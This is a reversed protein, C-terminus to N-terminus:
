KSASPFLSEIINTELKLISRIQRNTANYDYHMTKAMELKERAALLSPQKTDHNKKCLMSIAAYLEEDTLFVSEHLRKATESFAEFNKSTMYFYNHADRFMSEALKIDCFSTPIIMDDLIMLGTNDFDIDHSKCIARKAKVSLNEFPIVPILQAMPNFFYLGAGWPYSFPTHEKHVVFGNRNTYVIENRLMELDTIPILQCEFKSLDVCRSNRIYYRKLKSKLLDFFMRCRDEEGSLIIHIHNNMIEFTLIKVNLVTRASICILNMMFKMDHTDKFLISVSNGDTCMHWFPGNHIFNYECIREKEHFSLAPNANM